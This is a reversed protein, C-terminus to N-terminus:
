LWYMIVRLESNVGRTEKRHFYPLAAHLRSSHSETTDRAANWVNSLMHSSRCFHGEQGRGVRVGWGEHFFISLRLM